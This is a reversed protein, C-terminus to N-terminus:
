RHPVQPSSSTWTLEASTSGSLSAASARRRATVANMRAHENGTRLALPPVRDRIRLCVPIRDCLLRRQARLPHLRGRYLCSGHRREVQARTELGAHRDSEVISAVRVVLRNVHPVQSPTSVDHSYVTGTADLRVTKSAVAGHKM